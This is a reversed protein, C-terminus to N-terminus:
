DGEGKVGIEVLDVNKGATGTVMGCEDGLM